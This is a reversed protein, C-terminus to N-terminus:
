VVMFFILWGVALSLVLKLSYSVVRRRLGENAFVIILTMKALYSALIGLALLHGLSKVSLVDSEHLQVNGIISGHLEFLCVFFTLLYLGYPGLVRQLVKSLILFIAVFLSLTLLSTVGLTPIPDEDFVVHSLTKARHVILFLTMLIPAGFIYLLVWHKETLGLFVLLLAELAMGLLASLYSLSLLRVEDESAEHSQKALSATFATSSILGGVFGLAIGGFRKSFIRMVLASLVQILSLFLILQLIKYPNVLGWPDVSQRPVWVLVLAIAVVLVGFYKLSKSIPAAVEM